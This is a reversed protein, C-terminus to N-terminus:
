FTSNCIIYCTHTIIITYITKILQKYWLKNDKLFKVEIVSRQTSSVNGDADTTEKYAIEKMQDVPFSLPSPNGAAFSIMEPDSLSKFIERIASPKLGSVKNSFAIDTDILSANADFNLFSGM